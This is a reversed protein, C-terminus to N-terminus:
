ALGNVNSAGSDYYIIQDLPYNEIDAYTGVGCNLMSSVTRVADAYTIEYNYNSGSTQPYRGSHISGFNCSKEGPVEARM